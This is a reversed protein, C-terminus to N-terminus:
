SSFLYGMWQLHEAALVSAPLYKKVEKKRGRKKKSVPKNQHQLLSQNHNKKYLM